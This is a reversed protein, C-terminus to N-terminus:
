YYVLHSVIIVLNLILLLREVKPSYEINDELLTIPDETEEELKPLDTIQVTYSPEVSYYIYTYILWMLFLVTIIEIMLLTIKLIKSFWSELM